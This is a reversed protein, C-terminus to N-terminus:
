AVEMRATQLRGLAEDVAATLADIDGDNVITLIIHEPSIGGESAHTAAITRQGPRVVRWVFGGRERIAAAENDFRVDSVAFHCDVPRKWYDCMAHTTADIRRLLHRIWVEEGLLGRGFETGLLQLLQRPSKGVWDVPVEKNGRDQLWEKPEGLMASVMGYLPDALAFDFFKHRERLHAAVTSKGCGAAGCLGIIM